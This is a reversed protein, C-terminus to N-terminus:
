SRPSSASTIIATCGHGKGGPNVVNVQSTVQYAPGLWASAALDLVDGAYYAVFSDPDRVALKELANWIRDNAGPAAFHDGVSGGAAKEAAIIDEFSRSVRDVVDAEFAGAFVVIGPGEALADAIETRLEDGSAADALLPPLSAAEYVLVGQEVRAVHSYAAPDTADELVALLDELHCNEARRFGHISAPDPTTTM